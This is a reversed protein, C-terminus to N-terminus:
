EACRRGTQSRPRHSPAKLLELIRKHASPFSLKELDFLKLWCGKTQAVKGDLNGSAAFVELRIRYRTISHKIACVPTLSQPVFGLARRAAERLDPRSGLLEANPFEWLHANVVGAPRQRVLFRGKNELVFAAFRRSTSAARRGLNPLQDARNGRRAVCHRAVPCLNCKPQRPACILAGLEMLSQNLHTCAPSKESAAKTRTRM